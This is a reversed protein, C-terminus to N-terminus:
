PFNFVFPLPKRILNLYVYLLYFVFKIIKIKSSCVIIVAASSKFIINKAMMNICVIFFCKCKLDILVFM